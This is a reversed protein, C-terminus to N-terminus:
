DRVNVAPVLVAGPRLWAFLTVNDPLALLNGTRIEEIDKLSTVVMVYMPVLYVVAFFLLLAYIALRGISVNAM